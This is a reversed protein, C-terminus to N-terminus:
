SVLFMEDCASDARTETGFKVTMISSSREATLEFFVNGHLAFCLREGVMLGYLKDSLHILDGLKL